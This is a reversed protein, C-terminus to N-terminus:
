EGLYVTVVVIIAVIITRPTKIKAWSNPCKRAALLAFTPTIVKEKPNPGL